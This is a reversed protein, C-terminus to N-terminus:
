ALNHGEGHCAAQRTVGVGRGAGQFSGSGRSHNPLHYEGGLVPLGLRHLRLRRPPCYVSRGEPLSLIWRWDAGDHEGEYVALVRQIDDLAFGDQPNYELCAYLDYDIGLAAYEEPKDYYSM